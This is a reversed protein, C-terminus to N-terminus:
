LLGLFVDSLCCDSGSAESLSGRDRAARINFLPSDFGYRHYKRFDIGTLREGGM